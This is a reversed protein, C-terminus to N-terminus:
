PIRTTSLEYTGVDVEKERGEFASGVAAPDESVAVFVVDVFGPGKRAVELVDLLDEFAPIWHAPFDHGFRGFVFQDIPLEYVAVGQGVPDASVAGSRAVPAYTQEAVCRM